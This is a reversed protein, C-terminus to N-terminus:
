WTELRLGYRCIRCSPIPVRTLALDTVADKCIGVIRSWRGAKSGFRARHGLPAHGASRLFRALTESVIVVPESAELNRSDIDPGELLPTGLTEFYDSAVVEYSATPLVKKASSGAEFEYSADWGIPGAQPRLLIAAASTVGPEERLRDLLRKYFARRVEKDFAQAPYM